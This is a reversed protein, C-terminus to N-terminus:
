PNSSIDLSRCYIRLDESGSIRLDESKQIRRLHVQILDFLNEVEHALV